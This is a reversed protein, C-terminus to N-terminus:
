HSPGLVLKGILMAARLLEGPSSPDTTNRHKQPTVIRRHDTELFCCLAVASFHLRSSTSVTLEMMPLGHGRLLGTLNFLEHKRPDEELRRITM